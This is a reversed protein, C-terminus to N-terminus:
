QGDFEALGKRLEPYKEGWDGGKIEISVDNINNVTMVEPIEIFALTDGDHEGIAVGMFASVVALGPAWEQVAMNVIDRTRKRFKELTIAGNNFSNYENKLLSRLASEKDEIRRKTYKHLDM